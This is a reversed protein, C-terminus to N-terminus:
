PLHQDAVASVLLLGGDLQFQSPMSVEAMLSIDQHSLECDMKGNPSETVRKTQLNLESSPQHVPNEKDHPVPKVASNCDPYSIIM